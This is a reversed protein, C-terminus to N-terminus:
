FTINLGVSYTKVPPYFPNANSPGEPDRFDIDSWTVLNTGTLFFRINSINIEELLRHKIDYNITLNKLKLYSADMIWFDSRKGNNKPMGVGLRPYKANKNEPSWSDTLRKPTNGDNIFPNFQIYKETNTAGQFNCNISLNKYGFTLNSGYIIEPTDSKGIYKRDYTDDVKGDPKGDPGSIDKYKIDGPKLTSNGKTDQDAWNDIEEQSQFLGMSIRGFKSGFAQGTSKIADAINEAEAMEIVESTVYTFTLNANWFFDDFKDNYNLTLEIGKNDVIGINEDPLLTESGSIRAGYTDPISADKPRLIDETRKYFAEITLNLKKLVGIDLGLNYDTATEWTVNRNAFVSPRIAKSYKDNFIYGGNISYSDIFQYANIRDNGVQGASFRLKLNDLFKVNNLFPEESIRWGVSVAPFFGWRKDKDFNYSADYRFSTQLLYKGAYNYNLRGVYGMRATEDGSGGNDRNESGGAFIKDFNENLFGEERYASIWDEQFESAEFLATLEINHESIQKKYNAKLMYTKNFRERKNRDLNTKESNSVKTTYNDSDRDKIYITYPKTLKYYSYFTKDYTFRGTLNLGEIKPIKYNLEFNNQYYANEYTATGSRVGEGIPSMNLGNYGLGNEVVGDITVYAPYVPRSESIMYWLIGGTGSESRKENRLSMDVSLKMGEMLNVDINSRFGYRNFDTSKLLGEQDLTNASVYYSVFENGGTVSLSHEKKPAYEDVCEEWWDTNEYGPAGTRFKEVQDETFFPQDGDNVRAQNWYKAYEYANMFEPKKTVTQTSYKGTYEIVAKGKKGRKTTILVVGNAARAGYIATSAADKLVVFSAIDNPDIRTWARPVGDVLVLANNNGFTSQGRISFSGADTGPQGNSQVTIVGAVKGALTHTISTAGDKVIADTKVTSIAGTLDVKKQTGYGVVVVEELNVNDEKLIINYFKSTSILHKQTQMGMSSFIIKKDLDSSKINLNFKGEIDTIAGNTTGEILVNVGPLPINKDDFVQGLIKNGQNMKILAIAKGDVSYSLNQNKLIQDLVINLQKQNAEITIKATKDLDSSKYVFNYGTKETIEDLVKSIESNVFNLDIKINNLSTEAKLIISFVIFSILLLKRNTLIKM